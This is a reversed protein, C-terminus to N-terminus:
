ALCKLGAEYYLSCSGDKTELRGSKRAEIEPFLSREGSVLGDHHQPALPGPARGCCCWPMPCCRPDLAAFLPPGPGDLPPTWPSRVRLTSLQSPFCPALASKQHNRSDSVISPTSTLSRDKIHCWSTCGINSAGFCWIKKLEPMKPAGTTSWAGMKSDTFWVILRKQPAKLSCVTM